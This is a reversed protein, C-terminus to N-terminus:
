GSKELEASLYSIARNGDIGFDNYLVRGEPSILVVWPTGGTRYNTMTTPRKGTDSDGADFGMFIPLDYREQIERMKDPTNTFYGEFTTQVGVAVFYPSDNFAAYVQQLTPFGHSHCGPCWAQWCELMVFKGRHESLAFSGPKGEGDIWQSVDLEPAIQGEIGYGNATAKVLKPIALTAIGGLLLSRRTKSCPDNKM